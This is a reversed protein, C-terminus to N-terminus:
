VLYFSDVCNSTASFTGSFRLYQTNITLQRHKCMCLACVHNQMQKSTLCICNIYNSLNLHIEPSYKYNIPTYKTCKKCWKLILKNTITIFM